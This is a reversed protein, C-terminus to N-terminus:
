LDKLAHALLAVLVALMAGAGALVGLVRAGSPRSVIVAVPLVGLAVLYGVGGGLGVFPIAAIPITPGLVFSRALEGGRSREPAAPVAESPM